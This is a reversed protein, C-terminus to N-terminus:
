SSSKGLAIRTPSVFAPVHVIFSVQVAYAAPLPESSKPESVILVPAHELPDTDGEVYLSKLPLPTQHFNASSENM